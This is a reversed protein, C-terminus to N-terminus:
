AEATHTNLWPFMRGLRASSKGDVPCKFSLMVKEELLLKALSLDLKFSLHQLFTRHSTYAIPWALPAGERESM